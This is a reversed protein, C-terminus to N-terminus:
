CNGVAAQIDMEKAIARRVLDRDTVIGLMREGEVVALAGVGTHEMIAAAERIPREPGIGVGSRRLGEITRMDAGQGATRHPEDDEDALAGALASPGLEAAAITRAM